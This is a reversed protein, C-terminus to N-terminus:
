NIGDSEVAYNLDSTQTSQDSTSGVLKKLNDIVKVKNNPNEIKVASQNLEAAKFNVDSSQLSGFNQESLNKNLPSDLKVLVITFAALSIVILLHSLRNM